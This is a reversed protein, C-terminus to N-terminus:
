RGEPVTAYTLGQRRLWRRYVSSSADARVPMEVRPDLPLRKEVHAELIPRDQGFISLQFRRLATDDSTDDLMCVWQHGISEVESVPQVFLAIVDFRSPQPPSTKYLVACFPRPVRYIYQAEIAGEATLAARPQIFRCETAIVEDEANITVRYDAVETHPEAGLVGAHVFPFHAMDLFNEIARLGGVHVGISGASLAHRDPEDAEPIAFLDRTPAGLCTWAHGYREIAPLTRGSAVDHIAIAGGADRAVQIRQELLMTTRRRGPPLDSGASVPHWENWAIPDIAGM